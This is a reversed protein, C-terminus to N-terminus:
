VTEPVKPNVYLTRNHTFIVMGPKAGGPKKVYRIKTYDVPVNESESGKSHFAAISATEFLDQESPEEGGLLLVTHSGPIDKTHFWMDSSSAKKTTLWDNEKNNRGVLVTKGSSITYSYPKPRSKGPQERRNKRFRIYGSDTLEQRLLDIEEISKTRELYSAVSELYEIEGSVEELQIKKEKVATKSKGYKKYFNQANKAPSYKPDLPIKVTSGDYYSIVDVSKDGPKPVHLNAMLLEAYLRYKESNEAKYLDERLRQTKLKLKDLHNRIIRMLDNSRQKITNSTERHSFFYGAAESFTDFDLRSCSNELVTLATVHFDVPKGRNDTYVVPTMSGDDISDIIERLKAYCAHADAAPSGATDSSKSSGSTCSDATDPGSNVTGSAGAAAITEALAPSIGQIGALISREPQSQGYTLRQMDDETIELFPKKEQAPPYEYMKGPLIQRARNVDISVHKISDIIKGSTMDTLLVNSHKGMIEIILKKNVSFGLENVTEMLIEIIRDNEHQRIETIRAANLHKRLVMCFVPPNVPNEPTKDVLYAASHNGASSIFLRQKGQRTHIIFLLQEPQPQYIKEIKGMCLKDSFEKVAAYTAVGDFSM